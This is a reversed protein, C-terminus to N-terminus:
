PSQEITQRLMDLAKGQEDSTAPPQVPPPLMHERLLEVAREQEEPPAPPHLSETQFAPHTHHRLLDAAQSRTVGAPSLARLDYEREAEAAYRGLVDASWKGQEMWRATKAYLEHKTLELDRMHLTTGTVLELELLAKRYLVMSEVVSLKAEFLKEETELVRRSDIRGVDLSALQSELLREHFDVVSLYSQVNDRYIRVKQLASDIANAVQVEIEKLAVLARKQSLRAAALENRERIGGTIPIRAEVGISWSAFDTGGIDSWAANPNSGLGSFGYSGRLDFQPLLQNRAFSLRVNEQRIQTKRALFDPNLQFARQYSEFYALPEYDILPEDVAQIHLPHLLGTESYLTGLRSMGEYLLLQADSLRARRLSVGAEAELVELEPARGVEARHRNDALLQTAIALSENSIREQEQTLYLDWYAAEARAVTLMTERRYEQFALDSALAALRIRATTVGPGFNKLLPQVLSTGVFTEYEKDVGRVVQLNNRLERLTVGTRLRAGTPILFELGGTYLTNREKFEQQTFILSAQQQANNPRHNQLHEVTGVVQPEFIGTEARHTRRSIEAELMRMQISENYELVRELLDQLTLASPASPFGLPDEPPEWAWSRPLALCAVMALLLIPLPRLVLATMPITFAM